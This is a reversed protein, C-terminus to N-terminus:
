TWASYVLIFSLMDLSNEIRTDLIQVSAMLSVRSPSLDVIQTRIELVLAQHLLKVSWTEEWFTHMSKECSNVIHMSKQLRNRM